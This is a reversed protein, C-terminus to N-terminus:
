QQTLAHEAARYRAAWEPDTALLEAGRKLGAFVTTHDRRMISGIKPMSKGTARLLLYVAFRPYSAGPAKSPSLLAFISVDWAEAVADFIVKHESRFYESLTRRYGTPPLAQVIQLPEPAAVVAETAIPRHYTGGMARARAAQSMRATSMVAGRQAVLYAYHGIDSM